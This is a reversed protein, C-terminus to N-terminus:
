QQNLIDDSMGLERGRKIAQRIFIIAQIVVILIVLSTLILMAPSNAIELYDM